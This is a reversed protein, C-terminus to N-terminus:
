FFLLFWSSEMHMFFVNFLLFHFILVWLYSWTFWFYESSLWEFIAFLTSIHYYLHKQSSFIPFINKFLITICFSDFTRLTVLVPIELSYSHFCDSFQFFYHRLIDLDSILFYNVLEVLKLFRWITFIFFITDMFTM